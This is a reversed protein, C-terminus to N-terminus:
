LVKAGFLELQERGSSVDVVKNDIRKIAKIDYGFLHRTGFVAYRYTRGVKILYPNTHSKTVMFQVVKIGMKAWRLEEDSLSTAHYGIHSVSGYPVSALWSRGETYSLLELEYGLQYNFALRGVLRRQVGFVTGESIVNDDHWETLGTKILEAKKADIDVVYLAVQEIKPVMPEMVM